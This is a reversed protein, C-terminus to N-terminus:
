NTTFMKKSFYLKIFVEPIDVDHTDLLHHHDEPQQEKADLQPGAQKKANVAV